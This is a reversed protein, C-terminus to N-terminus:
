KRIGSLKSAITIKIALRRLARWQSGQSDDINSFHSADGGQFCYELETQYKNWDTSNNINWKRINTNINTDTM